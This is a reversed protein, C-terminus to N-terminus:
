QPGFARRYAAEIRSKAWLYDTHIFSHIAFTKRHERCFLLSERYEGSLRAFADETLFSVDVRRSAVLKFMQEFDQVTTTQAFLPYYHDEYLKIGLRGVVSMLGFQAESVECHGPTEASVIMGFVVEDVAPQLAVLNPVAAVAEPQRYLDMAVEGRSAALLARNGPLVVLDIRYGSERLAPLIRAKVQPLNKYAAETVAVSITAEARLPNTVSLLAVALGLALLLVVSRPM